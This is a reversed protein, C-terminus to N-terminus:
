GGIFVKLGFSQLIKRTKEVQEHDMNAKPNYGYVINIENDESEEDYINPLLDVQQVNALHETVFRGIAEINDPDDNFGSILPLRIIVEDVIQSVHIMADLDVEDGCGAYQQQIDVDMHVLEILLLNTQRAVAEFNEKPICGRTELATHIGQSRCEALVAKAFDTQRAPEIGGITVGGGSNRYFMQDRKVANVVNSVTMTQSTVPQATMDDLPESDQDSSALSVLTRIGPGHYVSFRSINTVKGSLRNEAVKTSQNDAIKTMNVM